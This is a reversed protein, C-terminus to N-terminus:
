GSSRATACTRRVGAPSATWCRRAEARTLVPTKGTKVVYKPGRVSAAPNAPIVQGLVLYDGFMRVAALHQKVSPKALRRGLHEVYTAVHVPTLHELRFHHAQCWDSFRRLARAYAARTNPNRIEATLFEVYRWAGRDGAAAFLAPVVVQTGAPLFRATASEPSPILETM